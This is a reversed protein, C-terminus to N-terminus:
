GRPTERVSLRVRGCGFMTGGGTTYLFADAVIYYNGAPLDVTLRSQRVDVGDFCAAPEATSAACPVDDACGIQTSQDDCVRRLYFITDIAAGEDIDTLEITVRTPADLRLEFIRDGVSARTTGRCMTDPQYTNDDSFSCLNMERDAGPRIGMLGTCADGGGTCMRTAGDCRGSGCSMTDLADGRASCSLVSGGDASCERSNPRCVHPECHDTQCFADMAQCDQPIEMGSACTRLSDGVCRRTGEVCTENGADFLPGGDFGPGADFGTMGSDMLMVTGSDVDPDTGLLDTDPNILASCGSSAVIFGVATLRLSLRLM